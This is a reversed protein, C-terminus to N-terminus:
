IDLPGDRVFYFFILITNEPNSIDKKSLILKLTKFFYAEAFPFSSQM